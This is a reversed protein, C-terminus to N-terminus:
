THDRAGLDLGKVAIPPFWFYSDTLPQRFTFLGDIVGDEAGMMRNIQAQFGYSSGAYLWIYKGSKNWALLLLTLVSRNLLGACVRFIIQAM